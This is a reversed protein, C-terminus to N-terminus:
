CVHHVVSVVIERKDRLRRHKMVPLSEALQDHSVLRGYPAEEEVKSRPIRRQAVVQRLVRKDLRKEINLTEASRRREGSPEVADGVVHEEVVRAAMSGVIVDLRGFGQLVSGGVGVVVRAHIDVVGQAPKAFLLARANRELKDVAIWQFIYRADRAHSNAHHLRM